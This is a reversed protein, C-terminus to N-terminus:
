SYKIELIEEYTEALETSVDDINESGISKNEVDLTSKCFGDEFYYSTINDFDIWLKSSVIKNIKTRSQPKKVVANNAQILNDLSTLVYPSHTTIILKNKSEKTKRILFEVMKRQITPYLNLEPEEVTVCYKILSNKNLVNEIVLYLPTLSQFGSSAQELKVTSGDELTIFNTKDVYNYKAGLVDLNVQKLKKRANEFRSGFDKICKALPIDNKMLGFVSEAVMSLIIREAPIYIPKFIEIENRINLYFNGILENAKDLKSYDGHTIANRLDKIQNIQSSIEKAKENNDLYNSIDLEDFNVTNLLLLSLMARNLKAGQVKDHEKSLITEFFPELMSTLRRFPYNNQFKHKELKWFYNDKCYKIYTEATIEFDINFDKLLKIFTTLDGTKIFEDSSFVCILKAVTSKGSSTKGILVNIDKIDIRVSKIPGFNRVELYEM